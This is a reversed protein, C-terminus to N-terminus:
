HNQAVNITAIHWIGGIGEGKIEGKQSDQIYTYLPHGDYALQSGKAIHVLSLKGTLAPAPIPTGANGFILPHWTSTCPGTCDIASSSDKADYYLTIGPATTLITEQTGNVAMTATVIYPETPPEPTSPKGLLKTASSGGCGALMIVLILGSGAFLARLSYVMLM